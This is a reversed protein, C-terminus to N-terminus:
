WSILAAIIVLRCSRTSCSLRRCRLDSRDGLRRLERRSGRDFLATGLRVETAGEEVAVALRSSM